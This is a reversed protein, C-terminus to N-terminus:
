EYFDDKNKKTTQGWPNEIKEAFTFITEFLTDILNFLAAHKITITLSIEPFLFSLKDNYLIVLNKIPLTSEPLARINWMRKQLLAYNEPAISQNIDAFLEKTFIAKTVIKREALQTFFFNWYKSDLLKLEAEAGKRDEIIKFTAGIPLHIIEDYIKKFATNSEQIEIQPIEQDIKGLAELQPLLSKLDGVERQLREALETPAIPAILMKNGKKTERLVKRELLNKIHFYAATRGMGAKQAIESIGAKKLKLAATYIEAEAESFSFNKLINNINEM